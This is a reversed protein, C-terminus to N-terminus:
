LLNVKAKDLIVNIISGSPTSVFVYYVFDINYNEHNLSQGQDTTMESNSFLAQHSQQQLIHPHIQRLILLEIIKSILVCKNPV